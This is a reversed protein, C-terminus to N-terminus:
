RTWCTTSPKSRAPCTSNPLSPSRGSWSKGHRKATVRNGRWCGGTGVVIRWDMRTALSCASRKRQELLKISEDLCGLAQLILAQNGYSRQLSDQNGLELCIADEKKHLAMAEELREWKHLTSAQNGYSTQLGDQNGLELCVAEQKKYLVM